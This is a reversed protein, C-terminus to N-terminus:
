VRLPMDFCGFVRNIIQRADPPLGFGSAIIPTMLKLNSTGSVTVTDGPGDASGKGGRLRSIQTSAIQTGFAAQQFAAIISNV